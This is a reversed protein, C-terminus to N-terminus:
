IFSNFRYKYRKPWLQSCKLAIDLVTYYFKQLFSTEILPITIESQVVLRTHFKKKQSSTSEPHTSIPLWKASVHINNKYYIYRM